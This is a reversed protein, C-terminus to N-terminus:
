LGVEHFEFMDDLAAHIADLGLGIPSEDRPSGIRRRWRKLSRRFLFQLLQNLRFQDGSKALREGSEGQGGRVLL